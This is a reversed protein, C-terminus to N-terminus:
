IGGVGIGGVRIGVFAGVIAVVRVSVRGARFGTGVGMRALGVGFFGAVNIGVMDIFCCKGFFHM